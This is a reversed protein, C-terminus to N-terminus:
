CFGVNRTPRFPKKSKQTCGERSIAVLAAIWMESKDSPVQYIISSGFPINDFNCAVRLSRIKRVFIRPSRYIHNFIVIQSGWVLVRPLGSVTGFSGEGLLSGFKYTLRVDERSIRKIVSHGSAKLGIVSTSRFINSDSLKKEIKM